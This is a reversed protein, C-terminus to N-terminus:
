KKPASRPRKGHTDAYLRVFEVVFNQQEPSLSVLMSAMERGRVFALDDNEDLFHSIPVNFVLSIRELQDLSPARVGTELRSITMDDLESPEALQAQTWGFSKRFRRIREGVRQATSKSARNAKAMRQGIWYSSSHNAIALLVQIDTNDVGISLVTYNGM